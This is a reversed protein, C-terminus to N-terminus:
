RREEAEEVVLHWPLEVAVVEAWRLVGVAAVPCCCDTGAV